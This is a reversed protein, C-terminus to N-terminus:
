GGSGFLSVEDLATAADEVSECVPMADALRVIAIARAVPSTSPV